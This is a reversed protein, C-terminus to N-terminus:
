KEIFSWKDDNENFVFKQIIRATSDNVTIRRYGYYGTMVAVFYNGKIVNSFSITDCDQLQMNYPHEFIFPVICSSYKAKVLSYKINNLIINGNNDKICMYEGPNVMFYQYSAELDYDLDQFLSIFQLTPIIEEGNVVNKCEFHIDFKKTNLILPEKCCSLALLFLSLIIVLKKM